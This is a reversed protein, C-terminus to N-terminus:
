NARRSPGLRPDLAELRGLVAKNVSNLPLTRRSRISARVLGVLPEAPDLRAANGTAQMARSWRRQHSLAVALQLQSFWNHHDRAIAGEASSQMRKVDGLQAAITLGTLDPADSLPNLSEAQDLLTYALAPDSRWVTSARETQKAALWPALFSLALVITVAITSLRLARSGSSAATLSLAIGLFVFATGGLVPFEWLWDVSGHILWYAFATACGAALAASSPVRRRARAIAVGSLGVFLLFLASGIAGTQSLLSMELSHPYLPQEGSRRKQLYGESFNDAGVGAIPHQRAMGLAVRWFDYRNSGLNGFLRTGGVGGSETPSRFSTWAHRAAAGPDHTILVGVTTALVVVVAALRVHRFWPPPTTDFRADVLAFVTAFAAAIVAALVAAVAAQSTAHAREHLTQASYPHTLAHIFFLTPAVALILAIATRIRNRALALLVVATIPIRLARRAIRARLRCGVPQGGIGTRDCLFRVAVVTPQWPSPRGSRFSFLAASANAYGTPPALRQFLFATGPHKSASYLTWIGATALGVILFLALLHKARESSRWGSAILLFLCYMFTRNASDWAAGKSNAWVISTLEFAAFAVLSAVAATQINWGTETFRGLGQAILLGGLLVAAPYWSTSPYGGDRVAWVLPVAAAAVPAIHPLLTALDPKRTQM